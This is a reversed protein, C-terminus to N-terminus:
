SVIYALITRSLPCCFLNTSQLTKSYINMTLISDLLEKNFVTFNM